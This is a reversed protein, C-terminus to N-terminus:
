RKASRVIMLQFIGDSYTQAAPPDGADFAFETGEILTNAPGTFRGQGLHIMRLPPVPAGVPHAMLHGADVAFEMSDASPPTWLGVIKESLHPPVVVDAADEQRAGAIKRLINVAVRRANGRPTDANCLAIVALRQSPWEVLASTWGEGSGTYAILPTGDLHGLRTGLAYDFSRGDALRSPSRMTQLSSASVLKGSELAQLFASLDLVTSCLRGSANAYTGWSEAHVLVGRETQYSFARERTVRNTNCFGTAKMGAPRLIRTQFYDELPQGAAREVIMGLVDYGLNSYSWNTGPPFLYLHEDNLSDVWAKASLDAHINRRFTAGRYDALGSSHSLLQSITPDNTPRTYEPFWKSLHDDLEVKGQERLALIATATFAKTISNIRYVTNETAAVRNDVEALGFGHASVTKGDRLVAISLGPIGGQSLAATAESEVSAAVDPQQRIAALSLCVALLVSLRRM